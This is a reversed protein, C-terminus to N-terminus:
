KQEADVPAASGNAAAAHVVLQPAAQARIKDILGSSQNYPQQGALNLLYNIETVTLELAITQEDM